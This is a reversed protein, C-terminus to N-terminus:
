DIEYLVPERKKAWRILRKYVQAVVEEEPEGRRWRGARRKPKEMRGQAM